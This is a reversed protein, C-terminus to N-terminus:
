RDKMPKSRCEQVEDIVGSKFEAYHMPIKAVVEDQLTMGKYFTGATRNHFLKITSFNRMWDSNITKSLIKTSLCRLLTLKGETLPSTIPCTPLPWMLPPAMIKEQSKIHSM